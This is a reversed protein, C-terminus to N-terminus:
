QNSPQDRKGVEFIKEDPWSELKSYAPHDDGNIAYKDNHRTNYCCILSWRPSVSRNQDSRHLINCHFFLVDGPDLVAHVCELKYFNLLAEVKEMDAGTQDGVEGHELRGCKHSGRLVQICGNERTAADIAINASVMDPFLVHQDLYWYGFDQHWEWAGGVRPEKLMMKHHFHYVEDGLLQESASVLRDNRAYASYVDDLLENRCCIRTTAGEGDLLDDADDMAKDQKAIDYLLEIQEPVFFQRLIVYGDDNFTSVQEDTLVTETTKLLEGIYSFM